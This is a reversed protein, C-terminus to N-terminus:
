DCMGKLVKRYNIKELYDDRYKRAEELTEFSKYEKNENFDIKFVYKRRHKYIHHGLERDKKIRSLATIEKHRLTHKYTTDRAKLHEYSHDSNEKYTVWELNNVNNNDRVYDIHNVCGSLFFPLLFLTLFKKNKM